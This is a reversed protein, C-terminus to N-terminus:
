VVQLPFCAWSSQVDGSRQSRQHNNKRKRTDQANFRGVKFSDDSSVLWLMGWTEDVSIIFALFFVLVVVLQLFLVKEKIITGLLTTVLGTLVFSFIPSFQAVSTPSKSCSGLAYNSEQDKKCISRNVSVVSHFTIIFSVVSISCPVIRPVSLRSAHNLAEWKWRLGGDM